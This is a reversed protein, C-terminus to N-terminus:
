PGHPSAVGALCSPVNRPIIRAVTLARGLPGSLSDSGFPFFHAIVLPLGVLRLALRVLLLSEALKSM